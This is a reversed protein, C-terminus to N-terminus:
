DLSELIDIQLKDLSQKMERINSQVFVLDDVMEKASQADAFNSIPGNWYQYIIERCIRLKHQVGKLTRRVWQETGEVTGSYWDTIKKIELEIAEFSQEHVLSMDALTFFSAPLTAENIDFDLNEATFLERVSLKYVAEAIKARKDVVSHLPEIIQMQESVPKTMDAMTQMQESILGNGIVASHWKKFSDGAIEAVTLPHKNWEKIAEAIQTSAQLFNNDILIKTSEDGTIKAAFNKDFNELLKNTWSDVKILGYTKDADQTSLFNDKLSNQEAFVDRIKRFDSKLENVGNFTNLGLDAMKISQIDGIGRCFDSAKGHLRTVEDLRLQNGEQFAKAARRIDTQQNNFDELEKSTLGFKASDIGQFSALTDHYASAKKAEDAFFNPDNPQINM